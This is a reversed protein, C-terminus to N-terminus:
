LQDISTFFFYFLNLKEICVTIILASIWQDLIDNKHGSPHTKSMSFRFSMEVHEFIFHSGGECHEEFGAARMLTVLESWRFDTPSPSKYM